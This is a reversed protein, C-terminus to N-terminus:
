AKPVAFWITRKAWVGPGLRRGSCVVIALRPPGTVKYYRHLAERPSVQIQRTVRYCLTRTLGRLVIRDGVRLRSLMANGLASGDPWVHANMLVNGHQAGPRIPWKRDWAVQWKGASTLPPAGPVRHVRRPTVVTARRVIGPMSVVKPAFTRRVTTPCAPRKKPTPTASRTPTPSPSSTPIDPPLQAPMAYAPTAGVPGPGGAAGVVAVATAALVAAVAGAAFRNVKQGVV